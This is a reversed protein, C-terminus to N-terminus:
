FSMALRTCYERERAAQTANWTTINHCEHAISEVARLLQQQQYDTDAERCHPSKENRLHHAICTGGLNWLPLSFNCVAVPVVRKEQACMRNGKDTPKAGECIVRKDTQCVVLNFKDAELHSDRSRQEAPKAVKVM